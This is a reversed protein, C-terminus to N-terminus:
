KKVFIRKGIGAFSRGGVHLLPSVRSLNWGWETSTGEKAEYELVQCIFLGVEGVDLKNMVKCEIWGICTAIRPPKVSKSNEIELSFEKFKDVERGSVSGLKMVLEAMELSPINVVAENCHELCQYTYNEKDVAFALTPPEESVPTIWAIPAVNPRGNPCLTTILAVPRPHLLLYFSRPKM